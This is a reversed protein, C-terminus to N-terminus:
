INSASDDDVMVLVSFNAIALDRAQWTGFGRVRLAERFVRQAECYAIARRKLKLYTRPLGISDAITSTDLLRPVRDLICLSAYDEVLSRRAITPAGGIGGVIIKGLRHLFIFLKSM